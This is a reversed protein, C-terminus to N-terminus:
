DATKLTLNKDIQIGLYKVSNNESLEKENWKIKLENDLQTKTSIFLVLETKGTNLSIKNPRLWKTLNKLDGNVQKCISNVCSNFNLLKTDDAFHHVESYKIALHLDCIYILFFLPELISGRPVGCEVDALNSNLGNISVFQKRNNLYSTLWTNSNGRIVYHELNLYKM